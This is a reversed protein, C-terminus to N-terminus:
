LSHIIFSADDDGNDDEDDDDDDDDGQGVTHAIHGRAHFDMEEKRECFEGVLWGVLWDLWGGCNEGVGEGGYRAVVLM